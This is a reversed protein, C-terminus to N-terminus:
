PLLLLPLCRIYNEEVPPVDPFLPISTHKILLLHGEKLYRITDHSIDVSETPNMWRSM